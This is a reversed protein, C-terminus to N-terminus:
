DLPIACFSGDPSITKCQLKSPADDPNDNLEYYILAAVAAGFVGWAINERDIEVGNIKAPMSQCGALALATAAIAIRKM